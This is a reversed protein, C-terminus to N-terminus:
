VTKPGGYLLLREDLIDQNITYKTAALKSVRSPTQSSYKYNLSGGSLYPLNGVRNCSVGVHVPDPIKNPGCGVEHAM